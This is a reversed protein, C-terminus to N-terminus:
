YNSKTRKFLLEYKRVRTSGFPDPFLPKFTKFLGETEEEAEEVEIEIRSVLKWGQKNMRYIAGRVGAPSVIAKKFETECGIFILLLICVLIIWKSM